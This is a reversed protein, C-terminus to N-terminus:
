LEFKIQNVLENTYEAYSDSVIIEDFTGKFVDFGKSFIGHTVILTIHAPKIQSAIALFTGGGDCLDDIIVCNKGKCKDAELVKLTINGNSLDRSKNCYVVDKINSNLDFYKSVKKVAGADPCILIADEKTYQKVLEANSINISNEILVTSTDSHVDYLYVKEFGCGNILNAIVKLDVSDGKQMLRDFRAGMLYPIILEKKKAFLNDLANGCQLLLLLNNADTISCTVQVEDNENVGDINIHPQKDPFLFTKCGIQKNINVKIM